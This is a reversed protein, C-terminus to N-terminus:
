PVANGYGAPCSTVGLAQLGGQDSEWVWSQTAKPNSVVICYATAAAASAGNSNITATDGPSLVANDGGVNLSTVGTAANLTATVASPYAETDTFATEMDTAVTHLDSKEAADVARAQQSLFIPIAIAALIGIIVIVVLLEILTFGKDKTERSKRLQGYM